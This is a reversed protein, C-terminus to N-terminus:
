NVELSLLKLTNIDINTYMTTTSLYSHGLSASIDQLSINNALMNNSFSHRFSHIGHKRKSIDINALKFYKTTIVSLASPSLKRFPVVSTVFINSCKAIPRANKLYDLLAFFVEDPFPQILDKGTKQQKISIVKNNWNIDNFKLNVIDSARFGLVAALLLMAYNRKGIKSNTDIFSILKSIEQSTYFSLIRENPNCKIKPFLLKGSFATLNNEFTFDFFKKLVKAYNCKTAHSFNSSNIYEYVTNFSLNELSLIQLKELYILFRKVINYQVNRSSTRIQSQILFSNFSSLCREFDTSKLCEYNSIYAIKFSGFLCFDKFKNLVKFSFQFSYTSFNRISKFFNFFSNKSLFDNINNQICFYQYKRLHSNYKQIVSKSFHLSELHELFKELYTDFDHLLKQKNKKNSIKPM